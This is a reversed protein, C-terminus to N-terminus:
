RNVLVNILQDELEIREALEEGLKSMDAELNDLQHRQENSDYKDNFDLISQTIEVIRPYISDIVESVDGRRERNEAFYSYLQFHAIATYDVLDECFEGLLESIDDIDETFPKRAALTGYLSLMETRTSVIRKIMALSRTRREPVPKNSMLM